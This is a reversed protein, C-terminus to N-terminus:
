FKFRSFAELYQVAQHLVVALRQISNLTDPQDVAVLQIDFIEAFQALQNRLQILFGGLLQGCFDFRRWFGALFDTSALRGGGAPCLAFHDIGAAFPTQNTAHARRTPLPGNLHNFYTCLVVVFQQRGIRLMSVFPDFYFRWTVNRGRGLAAQLDDFALGSFQEAHKLLDLALHLLVFALCSVRLFYLFDEAM